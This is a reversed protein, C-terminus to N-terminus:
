IILGQSLATDRIMSDLGRTPSWDLVEKARNIKAVLRAPDGARRASPIVPISRGLVREASTIVELVSFGSGSGLNIISHQGHRLNLLAKIHADILDVVHVYDRICTGDPTEWDVGFIKM